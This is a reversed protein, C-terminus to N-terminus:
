GCNGAQNDGPLPKSATWEVVQAAAKTSIRVAAPGKLASCHPNLPTGFLTEDCQRCTSTIHAGLIQVM